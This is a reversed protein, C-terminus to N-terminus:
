SQSSELRLLAVTIGAERLFEPMSQEPDKAAHLMSSVAPTMRVLVQAARGSGEVKHNRPKSALAKAASSFGSALDSKGEAVPSM